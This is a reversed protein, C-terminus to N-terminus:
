ITKQTIESEMEWEWMLPCEWDKVHLLHRVNAHNVVDKNKPFVEVFYLDPFEDDKISQLQEWSLSNENGCIVTITIFKDNDAIILQHSPPKNENWLQNLAAFGVCIIMLGVLIIELWTM